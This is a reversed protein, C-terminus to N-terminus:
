YEPVPEPPPPAGVRTYSYNGDGTAKLTGYDYQDDLSVAYMYGTKMTGRSNADQYYENIVYYVKASEPNTLEGEEDFKGGFLIASDCMFLLKGSISTLTGDVDAMGGLSMRYVTIINAADAASVACDEPPLYTYERVTPESPVDDFNYTVFQFTSTGLPMLIPNKYVSSDKTPVTGDHTYYVVCDEPIEEVEIMRPYPYDGSDLNIEPSDPASVNIQFDGEAIPSMLGFSNIYIAKVHFAGKEFYLPSTYQESENDPTSGDLTYYIKGTTNGTIVLYIPDDYSGPVLSFEPQNALYQQFQNIINPDSCEALVENISEFDGNEEYLEFLKSYAPLTDTDFDRIINRYTLIANQKQNNKVYCDALEYQVTLDEDHMNAASEMYSVAHAYDGQAYAMKAQEYKYDFSTKKVKDSIFMVAVVVLAIIAIGLLIAFVRTVPKSLVSKIFRGSGTFDLAEEVDWFDEDFKDDFDDEDSKKRPQPAKERVTNKQSSASKKQGSSATKKKASSPRKGNTNRLREPNMEQTPMRRGVEKVPMEQTPFKNLDKDGLGYRDLTDPDLDLDLESDEEELDMVAAVNSMSEQISNEIEPEFDPVYQIECGCRSCLLMGEEIRHGCKPCNM